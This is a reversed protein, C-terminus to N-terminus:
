LKSPTTVTDTNNNSNTQHNLNVYRGITRKFKNIFTNSQAPIETTSNKLQIEHPTLQSVVQKVRDATRQLKIEVDSSVEDVKMLLNLMRKRKHANKNVYANLHDFGIIEFLECTQLLSFGWLLPPFPPVSSIEACLVNPLPPPKKTSSRANTGTVSNSTAAVPQAITISPIPLSSSTSISPSEIARVFTGQLHLAPFRLSALTELASQPPSPSSSSSSSPSSSSHSSASSHSSDSSHLSQTPNSSIAELYQENKDTEEVPVTPPPLLSENIQQHKSIINTLNSEMDEKINSHQESWSFIRHQLDVLKNHITNSLISPTKPKKRHKEVYHKVLPHVLFVFTSDTATM